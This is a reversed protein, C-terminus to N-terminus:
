LKRYVAKIMDDALTCYLLQLQGAFFENVNFNEQMRWVILADNEKRFNWQHLGQYNYREGENQAHWLFVVGGSKTAAVMNKIVQPANYSHDLSNRAFVLDFSAAPFVAPLDEGAVAATRVPPNLAYHDLIKNYAAALPDLAHIQITRAGWKKGIWTLPGAGVDLIKLVGEAPPPLLEQLWPQLESDPSMRFSFEAAAECCQGRTRIYDDWFRVESPLSMKWVLKSLGLTHGTKKLLAILGARRWFLWRRIEEPILSKLKM